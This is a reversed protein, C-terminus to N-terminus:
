SHMKIPGVPISNNEVCQYTIYEYFPSCQLMHNADVFMPRKKISFHTLILLCFRVKLRSRKCVKKISGSPCISVLMGHSWDTARWFLYSHSTHPRFNHSILAYRRWAVVCVPSFAKSHVIHPKLNLRLSTRVLCIFFCRFHPFTLCNQSIFM